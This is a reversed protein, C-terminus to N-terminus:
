TFLTIRATFVQLKQLHEIKLHVGRSEMHSKLIVFKNVFRCGETKYQYHIVM